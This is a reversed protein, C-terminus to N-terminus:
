TTPWPTMEKAPTTRFPARVVNAHFAYRLRLVRREMLGRRWGNRVASRSLAARARRAASSGVRNARAQESGGRYRRSARGSAGVRPGTCFDSLAFSVHAARGGPRLAHSPRAAAMGLRVM